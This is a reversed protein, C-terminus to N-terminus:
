GRGLRDHDGGFGDELHQPPGSPISPHDYDQLIQMPSIICRERHGPVEDVM